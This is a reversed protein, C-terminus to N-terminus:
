EEQLEKKVKELSVLPQGYAETKAERLLRLDEFEESSSKPYQIGSNPGGATGSAALRLEIAEGVWENLSQNQVKASMAALRHIDPSVRIQFTGTFPRDPDKGVEKCTELYDDVAEHFSKELETVTEAEYTVLDQIFLIKGHLCADKQSVEASGLYDKYKMHSM